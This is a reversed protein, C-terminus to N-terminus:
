FPILMGNMQRWEDRKSKNLNIQMQATGFCRVCDDQLLYHFNVQPLFFFCLLVSIQKRWAHLIFLLNKKTKECDIYCTSFFSIIVIMNVAFRKLTINGFFSWKCMTVKSALVFRKLINIMLTPFFTWLFIPIDCDGLQLM